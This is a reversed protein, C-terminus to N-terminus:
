EKIVKLGCEECFDVEGLLRAENNHIFVVVPPPHLEPFIVQGCLGCVALNGRDKVLPFWRDCRGGIKVPRPVYEVV